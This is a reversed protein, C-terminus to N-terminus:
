SDYILHTPFSTTTHFPNFYNLIPGIIDLEKSSLPPGKVETIAPLEKLALYFM